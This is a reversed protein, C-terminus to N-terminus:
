TEGGQQLLVANTTAVIGAVPRRQACLKAFVLALTTMRKCPLTCPLACRTKFRILLFQLGCGAAFIGARGAHFLQAAAKWTAHARDTCPEADHVRPGQPGTHVIGGELPDHMCLAVCGCAHVLTLALFCFVTTCLEHMSFIV